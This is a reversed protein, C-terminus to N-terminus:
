SCPPGGQPWIRRPSFGAYDASALLYRVGDVEADLDPPWDGAAHLHGYVCVSVGREALLDSFVTSGGSQIPPYHTMALLPRGPGGAGMEAAADLSLRLRGLEREVYRPDSDPDWDESGPLRWGRTGAVVPGGLDFADNQLAMTGGPLADRVKSVSGWWYDHNGRLLIKRGPLRALWELDAGAEGLRMAWSIDGPVLVWDDPSVLARWSEAIRRPHDRWHPGFVDMPKESGGPLHLDGLAWVVM